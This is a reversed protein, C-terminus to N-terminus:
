GAEWSGLEPSPWHDQLQLGQVRFKWFGQFTMQVVRPLPMAEVATPPRPLSSPSSSIMLPLHGIHGKYM